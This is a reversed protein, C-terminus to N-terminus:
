RAQCEVNWLPSPHGSFCKDKTRTGVLQKCPNVGSGPWGKSTKARQTHQGHACNEFASLVTLDWDQGMTQETGPLALHLELGM